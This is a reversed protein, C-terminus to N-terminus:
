IPSKIEQSKFQVPGDMLLIVVKLFGLEENRDVLRMPLRQLNEKTDRVRLPILFRGEENRKNIDRLRYKEQDCLAFNQDTKLANHLEGTKM